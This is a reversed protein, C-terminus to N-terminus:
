AWTRDGIWTTWENRVETLASEPFSEHDISSPKGAAGFQTSWDAFTELGLWSVNSAAVDGLGRNVGFGLPMYGDILESILLYLLAIAPKRVHVPVRAPNVTFCVNGFSPSHAELVTYLAGDSAGGTWRDIAVHEGVSFGARELEDVRPDSLQAHPRKEAADLNADLDAGIHLDEVSDKGLGSKARLDDFYLAGLGTQLGRLSSRESKDKPIWSPDPGSGFLWGILESDETLGEPEEENDEDDKDAADQSIAFGKVTRMMREAHTRLAGKVSTGPIVLDHDGAQTPELYPLMDIAFGDIASKIMLPGVGKLDMTVRLLRDVPLDLPNKPACFLESEGALSALFSERTRRDIVRANLKHKESSGLQGFGTSRKAGLRVSGDNLVRQFWAAIRDATDCDTGLSSPSVIQIRVFLAAGSAIANRTFLFGDKATGYRRSLSVGSREIFLPEVPNQPTAVIVLDDISIQSASGEDSKGVWGFWGNVNVPDNSLPWTQRALDRLSGTLSTGPVVPRGLGDRAVVLDTDLEGGIGGVHLPSKLELWGEVVVSYSSRM